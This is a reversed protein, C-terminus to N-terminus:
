DDQPAESLAAELRDLSGSWFARHDMTWDNIAEILDPKVTYLRRQRDVRRDIVGARHLIKLHRSVAPASVDVADVLEGASQEGDRLLRDVITFRTSDGLASFAKILNNQM